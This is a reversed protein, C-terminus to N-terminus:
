LQFLSMIVNTLEERVRKEDEEFIFPLRIFHIRIDGSDSQSKGIPYYPEPDEYRYMTFAIIYSLWKLRFRQRIKSGGWYLRYLTM